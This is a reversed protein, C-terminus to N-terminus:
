GVRMLRPLQRGLTQEIREAARNIARSIDSSLDEVVLTSHNRLRVVVRCLMDVGGHEPGNIDSLRVSVVDIAHTFRALAEGMKKVAYQRLSAARPLSIAKVQIEM